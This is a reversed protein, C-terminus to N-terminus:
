VFGEPRDCREFEIVWVWPNSTWGYTARDKPKITSDWLNAFRDRAKACRPCDIEMYGLSVPHIAGALGEGKCYPCYVPDMPWEDPVGEALAGEETIDQLPEVRVSTVRLFLRAAKRPMQISPSWRDDSDWGDPEEGDARYVFGYPMESWAERVWLIDGTRFRCMSMVGLISRMANDWTRFVRGRFWWGEPHESSKFERLEDSKLATRRTATKRGEMIAKAMESNFLIPKIM